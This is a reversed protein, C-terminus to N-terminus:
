QYDAGVLSTGNVALIRDGLRLRGDKEAAGGEVLTRVYIGPSRLPTFLGDILGLGIGTNKKDLEVIFVDDQADDGDRMGELKRQPGAGGDVDDVVHSLAMENRKLQSMFKLKDNVRHDNEGSELFHDQNGHCDEDVPLVSLGDLSEVMGSGNVEVWKTSDNKYPASEKRGVASKSVNQNEDRTGFSSLSSTSSAVSGTRPHPSTIIERPSEITSPGNSTRGRPSAAPFQNGGSSPGGHHKPSHARESAEERKHGRPTPQPSISRPKPTYSPDLVTVPSDRNRPTPVPRDQRFDLKPTTVERRDSAAHSRSPVGRPTKVPGSPPEKSTPPQFRHRTREDDAPKPTPPSVTVSPVDLDDLDDISRASSYQLTDDSTVSVEPEVHQQMITLNTSKGSGCSSRVIDLYQYFTDSNPGNTMDFVFGCTPLSLPPHDSFSLLIDATRLALEVEEPPPFWGRPRSKGAGLQYEGLIQQVQAANLAPFDRRITMWDAQLLQVKPTALLDAATSLRTLYHVYEQQLEVQSAWGELADLNGRIQAGKAWRYFKGGAGREMLTNFLSANTFFFLYAFLQHIIDTHVNYKRLAEYTQHFINIVMDIEQPRKNDDNDDDDYQFPNTDLIVPLAVYLVKTLHYVTQQFTYMVVEELCVLLEEDATTLPEEILSSIKKADGLYRSINKQLFHHMELCNAMWIIVPNLQPLLDNMAKDPPTDPTLEYIDPTETVNMIMDLLRDEDEAEYALRLKRGDSEDEIESQAFSTESAITDTESVSRSFNKSMEHFRQLATMWNLQLSSDLVQTPDKFMFVYHAGISILDGPSMKITTTIPVGNVKVEANKNPELCVIFNVDCEEELDLDGEAEVKKSLVCHHPLTDPAFLNIDPNHDDYEDGHAVTGPVNGHRGILAIQEDLRHYLFDDFIGYGRILLLYPTDTPPLFPSMVVSPRTSTSGEDTGFSEYHSPLAMSRKTTDAEKIVPPFKVERVSAAKVVAVSGRAQFFSSDQTEIKKRLEFRRSFGTIPKWLQQLVLPKERDGVVRSYEAIWKESDSSPEEAGERKVNDVGTFYGVVDCLVYDKANFNDLKYRALAEKVIDDASTLETARVSKYNAGPSVHGGFVKLVGPALQNTSLEVTKKAASKKLKLLSGFSRKRQRKGRAAKAHHASRDQNTSSVGDFFMGLATLPSHVSKFPNKIRDSSSSSPREVQHKRPSSPSSSSGKTPSFRSLPSGVHERSIQTSGSTSSGDSGASRVSTLSSNLSGTRPEPQKAVGNPQSPLSPIKQPKDYELRLVFRPPQRANLAVDLPYDSPDLCIEDAERDKDRFEDYVEYLKAKRVLTSQDLDPKFKEILTPLLESVLTNNTLRVAKTLKESGDEFYIRLAGEFNLDEKVVLRFAGLQNRKNYCSIKEALERKNAAMETEADQVDDRKESSQAEEAVIRLHELIRPDSLINSSSRKSFLGEVEAANVADGM